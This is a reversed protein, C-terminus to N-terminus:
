SWCQRSLGGCMGFVYPTTMRHQSWCTLAAQTPSCAGSTIRHLDSQGDSYVRIPRVEHGRLTLLCDQTALDWCKVTTDDSGSFLKLGDSSFRVVKSPRCVCIINYSIYSSSYSCFDRVFFCSKYLTVISVINGSHPTLNSYLANGRWM